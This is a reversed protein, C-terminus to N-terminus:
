LMVNSLYAEFQYRCNCAPKYINCSDARLRDQVLRRLGKFKFPGRPGGPVEPFYVHGRVSAVVGLVFSSGSSAGTACAAECRFAYPGWLGCFTLTKKVAKHSTTPNARHPGLKYQINYLPFSELDCAINLGMTQVTSM